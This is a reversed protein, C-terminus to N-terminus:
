IHKRIKTVIPSPLLAIATRRILSLRQSLTVSDIKKFSIFTGGSPYFVRHNNTRNIEEVAQKMNFKVKSGKTDIDMLRGHFVHVPGKAHGPYRVMCNYEPPITAIRLKSHYLTERFSEQDGHYKDANNKHNKLWNSCFEVCNTADYVLVGTNYEPFTDPVSEIKTTIRSHNIAGAIDFRNVLDFLGSIDNEVFTDTDLYITESYPSRMIGYIKDVFGYKPNDLVIIEDFLNESRNKNTVLAIDIDMENRVSKASIKAEEVFQDDTAVYLIGRTM